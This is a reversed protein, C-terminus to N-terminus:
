AYSTLLFVISVVVGISLTLLRLKNSIRFEDLWPQRCTWFIGAAIVAISFSLIFENTYFGLDILDNNKLGILGGVFISVLIYIWTLQNAVWGTKGKTWYGIGGTFLGVLLLAWLFENQVFDPISKYAPVIKWSFYIGLIINISGLIKNLTNMVYADIAYHRKRLNISHSNEDRNLASDIKGVM